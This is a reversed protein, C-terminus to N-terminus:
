AVSSAEFRTRSGSWGGSTEVAKCAAARTDMSIIVRHDKVIYERTIHGGDVWGLQKYRWSTLWHGGGEGLYVFHSIIKYRDDRLDVLVEGSITTRILCVVGNKLWGKVEAM